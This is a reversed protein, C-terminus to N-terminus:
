TTATIAYSPPSVAAHTVVAIVAVNGTPYTGATTTDFFVRIYRKKGIYSAWITCSDDAAGDVADWVAATGDQRIMDAAAVATFSGTATTACEQLTPLTFNSTDTSALAGIQCLIMVGEATSVDIIDSTQDTHALATSDLLQVLDAENYMNKM